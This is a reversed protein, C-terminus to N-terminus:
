LCATFLTRDSCQNSQTNHQCNKQMVHQRRCHPTESLHYLFKLFHEYFTFLREETGGQTRVHELSSAKDQCQKLRQSMETM